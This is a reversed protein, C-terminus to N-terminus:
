HDGGLGRRIHFTVGYYVLRRLIVGYAYDAGNIIQKNEGLLGGGTGELLFREGVKLYKSLEALLQPLPEFLRWLPEAGGLDGTM